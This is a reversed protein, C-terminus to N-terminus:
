KAKVYVRCGKYIVHSDYLSYDDRFNLQMQGTKEVGNSISMSMNRLGSGILSDFTHEMLTRSNDPSKITIVPTFVNNYEEDIITHTM